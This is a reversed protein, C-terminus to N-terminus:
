PLCRAAVEPTVFDVRVVDAEHEDHTRVNRAFTMIESDATFLMAHERNPPTFFMAGPLFLEGEPLRASGVARHFYLVAGRLVRTFHWDTRHWHNARVSGRVSHIFSVHSVPTVLVNEIAGRSDGFADERMPVRAPLDAFDGREVAAIYDEHTMTM